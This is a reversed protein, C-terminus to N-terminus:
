LLVKCNIYINNQLSFLTYFRAKNKFINFKNILDKIKKIIKKNKIIIFIKAISKIYFIDKLKIIEYLLM